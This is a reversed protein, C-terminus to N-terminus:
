VINVDQIELELPEQTIGNLKCIKTLHYINPQGIRENM